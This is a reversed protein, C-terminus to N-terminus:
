TNHMRTKHKETEHKTKHKTYQYKLICELYDALYRTGRYTRVESLSSATWVCPRARPRPQRCNRCMLTSRGHAGWCTWAEQIGGGCPGPLPRAHALPLRTTGPSAQWHRTTSPAGRREVPPPASVLAAGTLHTTCATGRTEGQNRYHSLVDATLELTENALLGSVGDAGGCGSSPVPCRPRLLNQGFIFFTRRKAAAPVM